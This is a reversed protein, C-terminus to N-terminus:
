KGEVRPNYHQYRWRKILNNLDPTGLRELAEPLTDNSEALLDGRSAALLVYIREGTSLPGTDDIGNVIMRQAIADLHNLQSSTMGGCAREFAEGRLEAVAARKAESEALLDPSSTAVIRGVERLEDDEGFTMYRIVMQMAMNSRTDDFSAVCEALSFGHERNWLSLILKAMGAASNTGPNQTIFVLAKRYVNEM